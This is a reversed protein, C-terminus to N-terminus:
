YFFGLAWRSYLCDSRFLWPDVRSEFGALEFLLSDVRGSASGGRGKQLWGNHFENEKLFPKRAFPFSSSLHFESGLM